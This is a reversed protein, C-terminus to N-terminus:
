KFYSGDLGNSSCPIRNGLRRHVHALLRAVHLQATQYSLQVRAGPYLVRCSFIPSTFDGLVRPAWLQFQSSPTHQVLFDITNDCLFLQVPIPTKTQIVPYEFRLFHHLVFVWLLSFEPSLSYKPGMYLGQSPANLKYKNISFLLRVILSM